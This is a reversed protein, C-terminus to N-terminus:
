SIRNLRILGAVLLRIRMFVTSAPVPSSTDRLSSTFAVLDGLVFIEKELGLFEFRHLEFRRADNEDLLEHRALRDVPQVPICGIMQQGIALGADFGEGDDTFRHIVLLHHREAAEDHAYTLADARQLDLLAGQQQGRRV